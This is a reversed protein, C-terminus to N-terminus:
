SLDLLDGLTQTELKFNLMSTGFVTTFSLNLAIWHISTALTQCNIVKHLAYRELPQKCGLTFIVNLTEMYALSTGM